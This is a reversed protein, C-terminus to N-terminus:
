LIKMPLLIIIKYLNKCLHVFYHLSMHMYITYISYILYDLFFLKQFILCDYSHYNM